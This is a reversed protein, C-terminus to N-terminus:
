EWRVAVVTVPSGCVRLLGVRALLGEIARTFRVSGIAKHLAIPLVFQQHVADIRFGHAALEREIVRRRFVRYAEVRHFLTARIRRGLAQLAAVSAMAPYDIIVRAEAVRCLEALCRRWDPTHM